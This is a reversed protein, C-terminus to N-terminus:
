VACDRAAIRGVVAEELNGIELEADHIGYVKKVKATDCVERLAAEVAELGEVKDGEVRGRLEELEAETADFKAVLVDRSMDQVGFTSLARGIHRNGSLSWVLEAHITKTKLAPLTQCTMAAASRLVALSPILSADIFAADVSKDSGSAGKSENAASTLIDARVAAANSINRVLFVSLTKAGPGTSNSPPSPSPAAPHQRDLSRGDDTNGDVPDTPHIETQVQALDIVLAM